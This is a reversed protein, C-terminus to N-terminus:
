SAERLGTARIAQAELNPIAEEELSHQPLVEPTNKNEYLTASIEFAECFKQIEKFHKCSLIVFTSGGSHHFM